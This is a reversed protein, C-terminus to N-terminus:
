QSFRADDFPHPPVLYGVKPGPIDRLPSLFYPYLLASYASYIFVTGVFISIFIKLAEVTLAQHPSVFFLTGAAAGAAFLLTKM